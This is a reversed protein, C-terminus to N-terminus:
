FLPAPATEVGAAELQARLMEANVPAQAIPMNNIDVSRGNNNFMAYVNDCEGTLERLPEVWEGIEDDSYLHDFRESASKGKVQWTDANRGHLRLYATPTTHAIVTPIINYADLRPEDVMVYTAGRQELFSLVEATNGEEHWSRHRFEVLMEDGGLQDQAWELYEFASPKFTFYPPMQMLIGGLKGASRLPELAGRFRDFVEARFEPTPHNVRGRHDLEVGDRMDPPLQEVKVPHRTMVGFAKVHFTFNAPTRREWNAVAEHTPLAYYSSNVEVTDFLEAYYKLRGEASKVHPPYWVEVLSKDAWSCTGIRVATM